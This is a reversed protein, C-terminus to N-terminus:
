STLEPVRQDRAPEGASTRRQEREITDDGVEITIADVVCGIHAGAVIIRRLVIGVAVSDAVSTARTIDHGVVEVPITAVIRAIRSDPL